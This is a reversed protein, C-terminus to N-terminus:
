RVMQRGKVKEFEAKAVLERTQDIVDPSVSISNIGWGVLKPILEPYESPAQGCIGSLIGHKACTKITHEIAWQVADDREDFIHALKENDRDVGLILQTLDNSGISAGDIGVGIFKELLIVNSPVEVMMFLKFTGTRYLDVSAMVKKAEALEKPTRVFPLMLWLNQYYRRVRKVAELEMKLVEADALYRAVGRFGIMPNEENVSEYKEGGKLGRYENTRFDTTRYLVPRPNFSRAFLMLNEYLQDVFQDRKGHDLMYRPHTGINAMIFEARLLGIGDVNRAAITEALQPEGLNCYVKTATPTSTLSKSTNPSNTAKPLSLASAVDGAYIKGVKGDVTITTGTKLKTTALETGVVAPIGMERSVIAAHSTRGGLDTVVAVARRMAPVFDPTTMGTVLVEGEKVKDIEKSSHIVKVPGLAIGPSAGLGSLIPDPLDKNAVSAQPASIQLGDAISRLEGRSAPEVPTPSITTVPRTQVIYIKNKEVAWEIDQPWQYHREMELGIAALEKIQPDTLKAKEQYSKSVPMWYLESEERFPQAKRPAQDARVLMQDQRVIQKDIIELSKKRVQYQDPTISGSVIADGFGYGAEISVLDHDNAIPDVTFMVGSVDSQVMQQVPVAIGVQFHDFNKQVRYFVARDEFLSSWARQVTDLVATKGKINMYSEQQGAFSAEPLDEATASSRVAVLASKGKGLKQYASIIANKIEPAPTADLILQRCTQAAQTLKNSDNVDLGRLAQRIKKELGADKIFEFYATSTVVFGDPVPFGIQTMEGLNAGKGGVLLGDSKGTEAFWQIYPSKQKTMPLPSLRYSGLIM